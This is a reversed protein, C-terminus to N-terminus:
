KIVHSIMSYNSLGIWCSPPPAAGAGRSMKQSLVAARMPRAAHNWWNKGWRKACITLGFKYRGPTRNCLYTVKLVHMDARIDSLNTIKHVFGICIPIEFTIWISPDIDIDISGGGGRIAAFNQMSTLVCTLLIAVIKKASFPKNIINNYNICILHM